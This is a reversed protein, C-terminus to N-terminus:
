VGLIFSRILVAGVLIAIIIDVLVVLVGVLMAFMSRFLVDLFVVILVVFGPRHCHYPRCILAIIVCCRQSYCYLHSSLNSVDLGGGGVGFAVVLVFVVFVVCRTHLTSWICQCPTASRMFCKIM